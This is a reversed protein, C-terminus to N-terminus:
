LSGLSQSIDSAPIYTTEIYRDLDARRFLRRRGVKAFPIRRRALIGNLAHVSVRLYCAAEITNLHPGRPLPVEPIEAPDHRTM